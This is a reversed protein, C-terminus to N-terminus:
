PILPDLLVRGQVGLRDQHSGGVVLPGKNPTAVILNMAPEPGYSSRDINNTLWISSGPDQILEKTRGEIPDRDLIAHGDKM